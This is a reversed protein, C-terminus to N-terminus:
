EAPVYEEKGARERVVGLVGKTENNGSWLQHLGTPGAKGLRQQCCCLTKLLEETESKGYKKKKKFMHFISRVEKNISLLERSYNKFMMNIDLKMFITTALLRKKLPALNECVLLVKM